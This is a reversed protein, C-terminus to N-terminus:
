RTSQCQSRIFEDRDAVLRRAETVAAEERQAKIHAVYMSISPQDSLWPESAFQTDTVTMLWATAVALEHSNTSIVALARGFGYQGYPQQKCAARRYHFIAQEFDVADDSRFLIDGLAADSLSHGSEAATELLKRGEIRHEGTRNLAMLYFGLLHEAVIDGLAVARRLHQEFSRRASATSLGGRVLYDATARQAVLNQPDRAASAWYTSGRALVAERTLRHVVTKGGPARKWMVIPEGPRPILGIPVQATAPSSLGAVLAVLAYIILSARTLRPRVINMM